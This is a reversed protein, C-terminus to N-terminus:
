DRLKEDNLIQPYIGKMGWTLIIILKYYYLLPSNLKLLRFILTNPFEPM